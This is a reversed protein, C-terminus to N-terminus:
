NFSIKLASLCMRERFGAEWDIPRCHKGWANAGWSRISLGVGHNTILELDLKQIIGLAVLLPPLPRAM